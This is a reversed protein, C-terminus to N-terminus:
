NLEHAVVVVSAVGAAVAPLATADAPLATAVAERRRRAAGAWELRLSRQIQARWVDAVGAQAAFEPWRRVATSVEALITEARGRKM